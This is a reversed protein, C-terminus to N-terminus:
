WPYDDKIEWGDTQILAGCFGGAFDAGTGKKCAYQNHNILRDRDYLTNGWLVVRKNRVLEAM